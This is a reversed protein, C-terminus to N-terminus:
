GCCEVDGEGGRTASATSVTGVVDPGGTGGAGAPWAGVSRRQFVGGVAPARVCGAGSHTEEGRGVPARM